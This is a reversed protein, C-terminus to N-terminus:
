AGANPNPGANNDSTKGNSIISSANDNKEIVLRDIEKNLADKSVEITNDLAATLKNQILEQAKALYWSDKGRTMQKIHYDLAQLHARWQMDGMVKAYAAMLLVWQPQQEPNEVITAFEWACTGPGSGADICGTLEDCAYSNQHFSKKAQYWMVDCTAEDFLLGPLSLASRHVQLIEQQSACFGRDRVEKMQVQQTEGGNHVTFNGTDESIAREIASEQRTVGDMANHFECRNRMMQMLYTFTEGGRYLAYVESAPKQNGGTPPWPLTYPSVAQWETSVMGQNTNNTGPRWRLLAFNGVYQKLFQEYGLGTDCAIENDSKGTNTRTTGIRRSQCAFGNGNRDITQHYECFLLDSFLLRSARLAPTANDYPDTWNLRPNDPHCENDTPIFASSYQSEFLELRLVNTGLKGRREHSLYDDQQCVAIAQCLPGKDAVDLQPNSADPRENYKRICGLYAKAEADGGPGNILDSLYQNHTQQCLTAEQQAYNIATELIQGAAPQGFNFAAVANGIATTLVRGMIENGFHEDELANAVMSHSTLPVRHDFPKEPGKQSRYCAGQRVTGDKDYVWCDEGRGSGQDAAFLKSLGRSAESVSMSAELGQNRNGDKAPIDDIDLSAVPAQGVVVSTVCVLVVCVSLVTRIKHM